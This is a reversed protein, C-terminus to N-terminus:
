ECRCLPLPVGPPSFFVCFCVWSTYHKVNRHATYVICTTVRVRVTPQPLSTSSLQMKGAVVPSTHGSFKTHVPRPLFPFSICLAATNFADDDEDDDDEEWCDSRRIRGNVERKGPKWSVGSSWDLGDNLSLFVFFCTPSTKESIRFSSRRSSALNKSM